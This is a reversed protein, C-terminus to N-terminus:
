DFPQKCFRNPSGSGTEGFSSLQVILNQKNTTYNLHAWTGLSDMIREWTVDDFKINNIDMGHEEDILFDRDWDVLGISLAVIRAHTENFDNHAGKHEKHYHCIEAGNGVCVLADPNTLMSRHLFVRNM